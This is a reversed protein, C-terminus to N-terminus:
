AADGRAVLSVRVKANKATAERQSLVEVCLGTPCTFVPWEFTRGQPGYMAPVGVAIEGSASQPCQVQARQTRGDVVLLAGKPVYPVSVDFCAQCPDTLTSCPAGSPNNWFRVILRRMEASGTEIEIVPVLEFWDPASRPDLPVLTQRFNAKGRPVCSSRPVPPRPPTRPKACKPDDVCNSAPKCQSYVADPDIGYLTAGKNLDVWDTVGPLPESFIMPNACLLTFTVNVIIGGGSLYTRSQVSPAELLGVDYMHRLEDSGLPSQPCYAFMCMADGQCASAGCAGGRLAAALWGIAYSVGGEDLCVLGVTFAVERGKRRLPGLAVGDGILDTPTRTMQGDETGTVGLGFVGLFRRSEPRTVDYWPSEQVGGLLDYWDYPDDGVAGALEDCPDCSLDIGAAGALAAARASNVIEVGALDMYGDYV